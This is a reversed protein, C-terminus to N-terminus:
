LWKNLGKERLNATIAKVDQSREKPCVLVADDTVIVSIDELGLVSVLIDKSNNFIISGKSDLVECKGTVINGNEDKPSIREFATWSGIDDWIFSAKVVSVREAREMLGYDISVNEFNNYTEEIEYLYSDFIISTKGQYCSKMYDIESYLNPLSKSLEKRFYDLRWFFMGSNWYYNGKALFNLATKLDPKEHFAKVNKVDMVDNADFLSDTEIYGFGTEPRQPEIGITVLSDGKEAELMAISVTRIFEEDPKIKHDATLVSMVIDQAKYGQELYKAELFSAALALCPATNRKSPEAIVNEKPLEPLAERIQNLIKSNTVIYIDEIPLVKSIREIARDLMTQNPNLLKLLQKPQSKRSIPWFREGSGGAMIVATRKINEEKM